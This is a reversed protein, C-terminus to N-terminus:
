WESAKFIYDAVIDLNNSGMIANNQVYYSSLGMNKRDIYSRMSCPINM